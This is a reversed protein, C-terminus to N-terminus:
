AEQRETYSLGIRKIEQIVYDIDEVTTTPNLITLKLCSQKDVKTRAVVATGTRLLEDRVWTNIADEQRPSNPQVFRFVVANLEPKHLLEFHSDTEIHSAAQKAVELTTDIMRSFEEMGVAQLSMFLKLADFRRTTQVSKGVLNPVGEVEDEEPNLYDAHLTMHTFSTQNKVLFAGCSIPQYFQKHFDVTISDAQDIGQLKPKHQESMQLAGGYAADVHFWLNYDQALDAMSPIPDISGFDTTGATAFLAFPILGEETLEEVKQKLSAISLKYDQDTPVTIVSQEGLGLFAASQKVTFHAEESCLIRLKHSEPHLGKQQTNWNWLRKSAHERALLLGMYNSQTGGSTFVGDGNPYGFLDCLWKVMEQEVVTAAGSQDWSDMSQNMASIFVEAALAPIFPPCHLHAICTPQNPNFTHRLISEGTKQLLADRDVGEYPVLTSFLSYFQEKAQSPTTGSFSATGRTFYHELTKITQEMYQQYAEISQNNNAAFWQEFPRTTM